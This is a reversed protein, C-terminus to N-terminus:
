NYSVPSLYLDTHFHYVEGTETIKARIIIDVKRKIVTHKDSGSKKEIKELIVRLKESKVQLTIKNEKAQYVNFRAVPSAMALQAQLPFINLLLLYAVLIGALSYCRLRLSAKQMANKM